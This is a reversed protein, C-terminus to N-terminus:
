ASFDDYRTRLHGPDGRKILIRLQRFPVASASGPGDQEVFPYGDYPNVESDGERYVWRGGRVRCLAEGVYWSAGEVFETNAPDALADITPVRRLVLYGLAELSEPSYDWTIGEGYTATWNAFEARRTCLWNRLLEVDAVCPDTRMPEFLLGFPAGLANLVAPDGFYAEGTVDPDGPHVTCWRSSSGTPILDGVSEFFTEQADFSEDPGHVISWEHPEGNCRFRLIHVGDITGALEVETIAFLGRGCAAILELEYRYVVADNECARRFTKYETSYRVKMYDLVLLVALSETAGFENLPCDLDAPGLKATM